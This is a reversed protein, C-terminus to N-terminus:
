KSRISAIWRAVRRRERYLAGLGLLSSFAVTAPEPVPVIEYRGGGLAVQAAGYGYGEFHIASLQAASLVSGFVLQDTGGGTVPTGSWNTITLLSSVDWTGPSAFALVSTGSAFDISSSASLTLAGVGNAGATGESFGGTNLTGGALTVPMTNPIQNAAGLMLSGGNIIISSGSVAGDSISQNLLLTGANITTTGTWSNASSGSLTTVGSGDKVFNGAGLSVGSSITISGAGGVTLSNGGGTIGGSLTLTGGDSNIRSNAALTVAGSVTNNDQVNRLAGGATVGTGSLTLAEATTISNQVQLEGGSKVTTAGGTTGLATNNQINLVGNSITTSGTYTNPGTLTMTNYGDKVLNGGGSVVGAFTSNVFSNVTLTGSGLTVAATSATANLGSITENNGNLDFTSNAAINVVSSDNIQNAAGLQLITSASGNGVNVTGALADVGATKNLLTTGAYFNADGSFTNASAGSLTLTGTGYKNLMGSGNGVVGSLVVAANNTITLNNNATASINGSLTLQGAEGNILTDGGLTVAGAWSNTGALNRLAGNAGTSGSGALTLAKSGVAINNSLELSSGINVMASASNNGLANAQTIRLIGSGVTTNGTFTNTGSVVALGNGYKTLGGAGSMTGQLLLSGTGVVDAITTTNLIMAATIGEDNSSRQIISPLVGDFTISKGNLSGLSFNGTANTNFRITNVTWNSTIDPNLRTNGEFSVKLTTGSSPAGDPAWNAARTWNNDTGSGGDWVFYSATKPTIYSFMSSGYGTITQNASLIEAGAGYGSFYINNLFTNTWAGTNATVFALRDNITGTEWNQVVLTNAVTGGTSFIFNNATGQTGFDITGNNYSLAGVRESATGSSLLLTSNNISVASSDSIRDSGSIALTGGNIVTAGTYTNAGSLTLTGTGDKTIGSTSGGGNAIVGSITANGTGNITLNRATADSSLDIGGSLTTAGTNNVTITRDAGTETIKGSLTLNNAGGITLDGGLTVANAATITTTSQLASAGAINLVNTGLASNNGLAITGANLTLAGSFTNAASLTLTGDGQKTLGGTGSLIGSITTPGTGDVTVLHGGNLFNGGLTLSTTGVNKVLIDDAITINANIIQAADGNIASKTLSLPGTNGTSDFNLTGAQLTYTFPADLTLSRIGRSVGGLDITQATSVFRNNLLIDSGTSPIGNPDWNSASAWLNDGAGRDWLIAAVTKLTFNQIEHYSAASGTGSTFGFKIDDPRTYGSLDAIYITQPANTGFTMLVTLQNAPNLTIEVHRYDNTATPRSTYSPFDMQQTLSPVGNNGTGAIFDYGTTGTGPGRVAIANPTFAPGGVRGETASSFNGWDDLAVGLYGGNLGNVGTKQAYGLSGGYAGPSFTKSADMIFFAIGDAAGIGGQNWTAFDFSASVTTNKSAVSNNYLAYASLNQTNPTLRLWGSGSADVTGGTLTPTYNTGAVSNTGGLTWNPATSNRFNETVTTQAQVKKAVLVAAAASGLAMLMTKLESKRNPRM